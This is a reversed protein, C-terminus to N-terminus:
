KKFLIFTVLQVCVTSTQGVLIRVTYVSYFYKWSSQQKYLTCVSYLYTWNQGSQGGQIYQSYLTHVYLLM